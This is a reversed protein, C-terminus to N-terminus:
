RKAMEPCQDHGEGHGGEAPGCCQGLRPQCVALAGGLGASHAMSRLCHRVGAVIGFAAAITGIGILLRRTGNM